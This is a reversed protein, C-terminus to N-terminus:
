VQVGNRPTKGKGWLPPVKSLGAPDKKPGVDPQPLQIPVTDLSSSWRGDTRTSDAMSSRGTELGAKSADKTEQAAAEIVVVATLILAVDVWAGIAVVFKDAADITGPAYKDVLARDVRAIVRRVADHEVFSYSCGTVNGSVIMAPPASDTEPSTRSPYPAEHLFILFIQKEGEVELRITVRRENAVYIHWFTAGSREVTAHHIGTNLLLKKQGTWQSDKGELRFWPNGAVDQVEYSATGWVGRRLLFSEPQEPQFTVYQNGLVSIPRSPM